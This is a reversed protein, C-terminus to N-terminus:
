YYAVPAFMFTGYVNDQYIEFETPQNGASDYVPVCPGVGPTANNCPPPQFSLAATNTSTNTISAQSETTWTLMNSQKLSGSLSAVFSASLSTDVSYTVSNSTTIDQAQTSANTYTLTCTYIDPQQSPTAQIYNFTPSLNSVTSTSGSTPNTATINSCMSTTFRHDPTETPLPGFGLNATGYTANSFPDASAIQALDASTLAPGQGAPWLQSAAWSRDIRTQIDPPMTGLHGNLYGLSIGVVDFGFPDNGDYGYGKWVVVGPAVNFIVAPNLWVWVIDYDNDVPSYYNFTGFTQEGQQVQINSTVTATGKTTQSAASAFTESVSGSVVKAISFGATVSVSTSTGSAFSSSLSATTGVSASQTYQVWTNPSPGPPAYTVGLVVFKPDVYGITGYCAPSSLTATPSATPQFTIFCNNPLNLTITPGAGAVIGCSTKAAPNYTAVASPNSITAGSFSFSTFEDYDAESQPRDGPGCHVENFFTSFSLTGGGSVNITTAWAPGATLVLVALFQALVKVAQRCPALLRSRLITTARHLMPIREKYELCQSERVVGHHQTGSIGATPTAESSNIGTGGGTL